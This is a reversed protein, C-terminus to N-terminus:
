SKAAESELNVVVSPDPYSLDAGDQGMDSSDQTTTEQPTQNDSTPSDSNRLGRTQNQRRSAESRTLSPRKSRNKMLQFHHPKWRHSGSEIVKMLFEPGMAYYLATMTPGMAQSFWALVEELTRETKEVHFRCREFEETLAKWWPLESARCREWSSSDATTDRFSIYSKLLGVTFRKWQDIPLSALLDVFLNARDKKFELEWRVWPSEVTEGKGMAQRRKDYVRLYSESQRSGFTIMEGQVADKGKHSCKRKADYSSWRMVAQGLDAAELVQAVTAHGKRDDLAVDVRTGHGQKERVWRCVAQVKEPEWGSVIEGSLSVHVEGHRHPMGTGMRGSGGATSVSIWARPYGHFGKELEMWEGGVQDQAENPTSEPVTFALWDVSFLLGSSDSGEHLHGTQAGTISSRPRPPQAAPTPVDPPANRGDVGDDVDPHDM